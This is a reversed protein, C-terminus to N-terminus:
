DKIENKDGGYYTRYTDIMAEMHRKLDEPDYMMYVPDPDEESLFNFYIGLLGKQKGYLRLLTACAEATAEDVTIQAKVDISLDLPNAM